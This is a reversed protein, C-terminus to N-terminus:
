VCLLLEENLVQGHGNGGSGEPSGLIGERGAGRGRSGWGWFEWPPGSTGLVRGGEGGKGGRRGGRKGVEGGDGSKGLAWGSKERSRWCNGVNSRSKRLGPGASHASCLVTNSLVGTALPLRVSSCM